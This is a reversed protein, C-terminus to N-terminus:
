DENNYLVNPNKNLRNYYLSKLFFDRLEEYSRHYLETQVAKDIKNPRMVADAFCSSCFHVDTNRLDKEKEVLVYKEDEFITPPILKCGYADDM